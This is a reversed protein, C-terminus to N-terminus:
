TRLWRRAVLVIHWECKSDWVRNVGRRGKVGCIIIEFCM